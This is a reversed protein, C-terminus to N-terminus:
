PACFGFGNCTCSGGFRANCAICDNAAACPEACTSTLFGCILPSNCDSSGVCTDGFQGGTNGGSVCQRNGDCIQGSPCSANNRCGVRCEQASIDCFQTAACVSDNTCTVGTGEQVCRGQANCQLGNTCPTGGNTCNPITCFGAATDCFTNPAIGCDVASTCPQARECTSTGANCTLGFGACDDPSTCAPLAQCDGNGDCFNGGGCTTNENQPTCDVDPVCAGASTCACLAGGTCGPRGICDPAASCPQPDPDFCQQTFGNCQFAECRDAPGRPCDASAACSSGAEQCQGDLCVQGAQCDCKSGCQSSGVQCTGGVCIEGAVCVSSDRCGFGCTGDVDCFMSQLPCAEDVGNCVYRCVGDCRTNNNEESFFECESVDSCLQLQVVGGGGDPGADANDDLSRPCATTGLVVGVLALLPAIWALRAFSM